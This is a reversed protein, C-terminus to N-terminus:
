DKERTIIVQKEKKISFKCNGLTKGAMNEYLRQLKEFRPPYYNGGVMQIIKKLLRYGIEPHYSYFKPVNLVIGGMGKETHFTSVAVDVVICDNFAKEVEDEIFDKTRTLNQVALNIRKRSIGIKEMEPIFNRIKVRNYKEDKNSPDEIWDQEKSKLYNKLEEKSVNLLPRVIKVGKMETIYDMASLGYIGSGRGLNLLFTEVQDDLIHATLLHKIDNNICWEIMLEYRANRAKAQINVSPKNGEWVLTHHEIGKDKLWKKVQEAEDGAEKRLKHDVTLGIINLKHELALLVMAMSDAGGSVAVATKQNEYFSIDFQM